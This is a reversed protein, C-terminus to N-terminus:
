FFKISYIAAQEYADIINKNVQLAIYKSSLKAYCKSRKCNFNENKKNLAIVESYKEIAKLYNKEEL